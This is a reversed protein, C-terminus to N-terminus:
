KSRQPGGDPTAVAAGTPVNRKALEDLSLTVPGRATEPDPGFVGNPQVSVRATVPTNFNVEVPEPEPTLAEKIKDRVAHNSGAHYVSPGTDAQPTLAGDSTVPDNSM